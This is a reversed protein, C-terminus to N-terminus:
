KTQTIMAFHILFGAQHPPILKSLTFCLPPIILAVPVSPFRFVASILLQATSTLSTDFMARMYFVRGGHPVGSLLPKGPPMSSATLITKTLPSIPPPTCIEPPLFPYPIGDKLNRCIVPRHNEQANKAGYYM